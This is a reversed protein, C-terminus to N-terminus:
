NKTKSKREIHSNLCAVVGAFANSNKSKINRDVYPTGTPNQIHVRVSSINFTALKNWISDNVFYFQWYQEWDSNGSFNYHCYEHPKLRIVEGSEGLLWLSSFTDFWDFNGSNNTQLLVNIYKQKNVIGASVFGEVRSLLVGEQFFLDRETIMKMVGTFKDLEDLELKCNGSQASSSPVMGALM